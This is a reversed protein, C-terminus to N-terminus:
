RLSRQLWRSEAQRWARQWNLAHLPSATVARDIGPLEIPAPEGLDGRDLGAEVAAQLAQWYAAARAAAEAPQAAGQEGVWRWPRAEAGSDEPPRWQALARTSGALRTIDADRGDPASGDGLLGPAFALRAGAHWWWTVSVADARDLRAWRWPGWTGAEGTLQQRPLAVPDGEGLDTAAPGLRTRLREVCGACREAMQRAVAEHATHTAQAAAPLGLVGLVAEPHPWPSAVQLAAGPWRQALVAALRRGFAPSPGSGILWLRTAQGGTGPEVALLLNSVQGRNVADGDGSAAPLLWLDPGLAIWDLAPLAPQSAPPGAVPPPSPDQPLSCAGLAWAVTGLAWARLRDPVRRSRSRGQAIPGVPHEM